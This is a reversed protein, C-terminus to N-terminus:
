NELRDDHKFLNIEDAMHENQRYHLILSAVTPTHTTEDDFRRREWEIEFGAYVGGHEHPEGVEGEPTWSYRKLGGRWSKTPSLMGDEFVPINAACPQSRGLTALDDNSMRVSRGSADTFWWWGASRTSFTLSKGEFEEILPVARKVGELIARSDESVTVTTGRIDVQRTPILNENSPKGVLDVSGILTGEPGTLVFPKIGAGYLTYKESDYRGGGTMVRLAAEILKRNIGWGYRHVRGDVRAVYPDWDHSALASYTKPVRVQRDLNKELYQEVSDDVVWGLAKVEYELERDLDRQYPIIEIGNLQNTSENSNSDLHDPPATTLSYEVRSNTLTQQPM